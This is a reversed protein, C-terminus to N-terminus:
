GSPVIKPNLFSLVLSLRVAEVPGASELSRMWAPGDSSDHRTLWQRVGIVVLAVGLSLRVWSAWAPTEDGTEVVEALVVFVTVACLIGMFWGALFSLSTARPRPTFLLLISPIVPFPSAAIAVALPLTDAM